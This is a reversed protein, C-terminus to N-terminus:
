LLANHQGYNRMLNIGRVAPHRQSLDVISDWTHDLSGDNVIVIEFTTSIAPMVKLLRDVLLPLTGESNFAPIIVSVSSAQPTSKLDM